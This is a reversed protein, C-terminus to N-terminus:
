IAAFNNVMTCIHDVEDPTLLPHIPLSVEFQALWEGTPMPTSGFEKFAQQQHLPLPYHRATEIGAENMTKVFHEPNSPFIPFIHHVETQQPVAEPLLKVVPNSIKQRYINAIKRRLENERELHPLRLILVAAQLEDMRSNIGRYQHYYKEPAGYNALHRCHKATEEDNTTICGADGMAGLNKGPYFSFAAADLLGGARKGDIASFHAQAADELLMVGHRAKLARLADVDCIRGYLHVGIIARTRANILREAQAVNILADEGVDCWVPKLGARVVALGTAAFTFAPVIVEDADAWGKMQKWAMLVLSLADLGNGCAVAHSTGVARSWAEEFREVCNGCLYSGSTAVDALAKSLGPEYQAMIRRLPYYKIQM